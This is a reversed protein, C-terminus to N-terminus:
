GTWLLTKIKKEMWRIQLAKLNINSQNVASFWTDTSFHQLQFTDNGKIGQFKTLKLMVILLFVTTTSILKLLKFKLFRVLSKSTKVINLRLASLRIFSMPVVIIRVKGVPLMFQLLKICQDDHSIINRMDSTWLIKRTFANASETKVGHEGKRMDRKLLQKTEEKGVHFHFSISAYNWKVYRSPFKNIKM